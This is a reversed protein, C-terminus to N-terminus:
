DTLGCLIIVNRTVDGHRNLTLAPLPGFAADLEMGFDLGSWVVLITAITKSIFPKCYGLGFRQWGSTNRRSSMKDRLFGTECIGAYVFM